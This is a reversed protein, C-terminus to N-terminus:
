EIISLRAYDLNLTKLGYDDFEVLAKKEELRKRVLGLGFVNHRVRVGAKIAGNEQDPETVKMSDMPAPSKMSYRETWDRCVEFVTRPLEAIFRSVEPTLTGTRPVYITSPYCLFLNEKARTVAVYMLRREEELSEESEQAYSSPFRGEVLSIIFVSHWELGKASHITSLTLSEADPGEESTGAEPPELVIDTLLAEISSYRTSLTCLHELDKYRKPYDDYHIRKLVPEYYQLLSELCDSPSAKKSIEDLLKALDRLGREGKPGIPFEGLSPLSFDSQRLWELMRQCTRQGIGDLLLLVRNWSLLDAPNLIVRLHAIIDKIHATELLKLGGYKRFPLGHRALELELDFSHFSSRFLVAMESLPVGEERLKTISRCVARSQGNDDPAQVLRVQPGGKKRTFLCKTYKERAGSIISNALSLVPQTSRYNEELKIIRTGPFISPFNMINKFNAGRFSYISQSDDGVVMVNNHGYAMLRVIEAQLCNTDQYEDVMIYQFRQSIMQRIEGKEGLLDRWKVLLDDYDMLHHRSKYDEYLAFLEELAQAHLILHPFENELTEPISLAKNVAKGFIEVITTKKPFHSGKGGLGLSNRLLDVADGSDVRDLITFSPSIGAHGGFRRLMQNAVSHFTGGTVERCRDSLLLSARQLMERAARCTFTLLLIARPSVGTEVLRALRYVLTRTKGSGAGAIVLIPGDLSLVADLQGANLVKEYEIRRSEWPFSLNAQDM